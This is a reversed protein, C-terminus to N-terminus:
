TNSKLQKLTESFPPYFVGENTVIASVFENPTVDFAPSFVSTDEPAIRKGNFVTTERENREEIPIDEGTKIQLDFTSSPAGVYFPIRHHKALVAISYTGVKNAVDGNQAIRDAGVLVADIKGQKMLIAATSDTILTSPINAQKMEWATLRAGQFLPRTEDIYVCKLKGEEWAKTIIGLATGRGGTALAGANCHTLVSCSPPLIDVGFSSIRECMEIDERHILLAEDLLRKRLDDISESLWTDVIHHQRKLAWFLNVATPRTSGLFDITSYLSSRVEDADTSKLHFSALAVGYAAAIGILPAGRIALCQIAEAILAADDTTRYIEELPLQTQDLFRIRGDIWEFPKM